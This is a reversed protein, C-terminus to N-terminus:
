LRGYSRAWMSRQIVSMDERLENLRQCFLIVTNYRDKFLKDIVPSTTPSSMVSQVGALERLVRSRIRTLLYEAGVLVDFKESLSLKEDRLVELSDDLENFMGQLIRDVKHFQEKLTSSQQTLTINSKEM